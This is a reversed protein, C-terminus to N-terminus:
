EGLLRDCAGKWLDPSRTFKNIKIDGFHHFLGVMMQPFASWNDRRILDEVEDAMRSAWTWRQRFEEAKMWYDRKEWADASREITGDIERLCFVLHAIMDKTEADFEAKKSLRRLIEACTRMNQSRIKGPNDVNIIRSM